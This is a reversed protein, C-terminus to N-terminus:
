VMQNNWGLDLYFNDIDQEVDSCSECSLEPDGNDDMDNSNIESSQNIMLHLGFEM